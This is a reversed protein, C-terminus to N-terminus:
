VLKIREAMNKWFSKSFHTVSIEYKKESLNILKNITVNKFKDLVIKLISPFNKNHFDPHSLFYLATTHEVLEQPQLSLNDWDIIAIKNDETKFINKHNLDGHTLILNKDEFIKQYETQLEYSKFFNPHPIKEINKVTTMINFFVDLMEIINQNNEKKIFKLKLIGKNEFVFSDIITPTSFNILNGHVWNFKYVCEKFNNIDSYVKYVNINNEIIVFNKHKIYNSGAEIIYPFKCIKKAINEDTADISVVSM